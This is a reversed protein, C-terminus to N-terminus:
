QPFLDGSVGHLLIRLDGAAFLRFEQDLAEWELAAQELTVRGLTETERRGYLAGQESVVLRCPRWIYAQFGESPPKRNVRLATKSQCSTRQQITYAAVILTFEARFAAVATSCTKRARCVATCAHALNSPEFIV